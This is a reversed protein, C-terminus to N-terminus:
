QRRLRVTKQTESDGQGAPKPPEDGPPGETAAIPDAILGYGEAIQYGRETFAIRVLGRRNRYSIGREDIQEVTQPQSMLPTRIDTLFRAQLEASLHRLHMRYIATRHLAVDVWRLNRWRLYLYSVGATTGLVLAYWISQVGLDLPLALVYALPIAVLWGGILTALLSPKTDGAGRLAGDAVMGIALLPQAVANIRLYSTGASIVTPHASPDFLRILEPAFIVLPVTIASMVVVGLVIAVNGRLRADETQWAGLAQGVLSTAAIHIAYGPMFSLAMVQMGIALAAAGYTGAATATVIRMVMLRNSQQLVSQIGAPLGISLIDWYTRWNPLYSGPLITIVSKGSYIVALSVIMGVIRSLLTAMAAGTVGFAPLPGPGFIFLYNLAINLANVGGTIYLPTVTDGAGQMISNTLFTGVLFFTGLFLLKLYGTGLEVALPDGAGNLFRLLPESSFYGVTSLVLSVLVALSLSQRTVDSLRQPDRAGKAQAALAMSGTVVALIFTNVLMRIAVSMGVAAIEIPGLRGVMFVDVVQVLTMLLNTFIIPLALRWVLKFTPLYRQVFTPM